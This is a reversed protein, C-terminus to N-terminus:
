KNGQGIGAKRTLENFAGRTMYVHPSHNPIAAADGINVLYEAARFEIDTEIRLRTGEPVHVAGGGVNWYTADRLVLIDFSTPEESV